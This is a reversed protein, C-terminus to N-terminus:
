NFWAGLYLATRGAYQLVLGKAYSGGGRMGKVRV